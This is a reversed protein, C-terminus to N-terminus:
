AVEVRKVAFVGREIWGFPDSDNLTKTILNNAYAKSRKVMLLPPRKPPPGFEHLPLIFWERM